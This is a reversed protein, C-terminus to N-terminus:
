FMETGGSLLLPPGEQLKALGRFRSAALWVVFVLSRCVVVIVFMRLGLSPNEGYGERDSNGDIGRQQLQGFQPRVWV